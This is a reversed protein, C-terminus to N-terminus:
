QDVSRSIEFIKATDNRGVATDCFVSPTRDTDGISGPAEDSASCSRRIQRRMALRRGSRLTFVACCCRSLSARSLRRRRSAVSLEGRYGSGVYDAHSIQSRISGQLDRRDWIEVTQVGADRRDTAAAVGHLPTGGTGRPDDTATAHVATGVRPASRPVGGDSGAVANFAAPEALPRPDPMREVANSCDAPPEAPM